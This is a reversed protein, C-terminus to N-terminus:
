GSVTLGAQTQFYGSMTTFRKCISDTSQLAYDSLHNASDGNIPLRVQIRRLIDQAKGTSDIMVQANAFQAAVAGASGTIKLSSNQYLSNIRMYYSSNSLGTITLTCNTNNCAVSTLNNGNATNAAFPISNTGGVRLPLAFVTMTGAQLNAINNGSGGTPVLDFRVVGYGCTWSATTSFAAGASTPCNNVPTASGTTTQWSLVLSTLSAGSSNSIPLVTSAGTLTYQLTTPTPDVIVCSYSINSAGDVAPVLSAYFNGAGQDACSTKASVVNGADVATKILNRADNVGTEAAYFAQTSLQRDLAQRQNRRSIQAFGLVVLSLVIMLIMTVMISVM